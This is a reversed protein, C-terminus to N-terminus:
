ANKYKYGQTGKQGLLVLSALVSVIRTTMTTGSYFEAEVDKDPVGKM